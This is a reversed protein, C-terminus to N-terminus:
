RALYILTSSFTSEGPPNCTTLVCRYRVQYQVILEKVCMCVPYDKKGKYNYKQVMSSFSAKYLGRVCM